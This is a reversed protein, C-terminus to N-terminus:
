RRAARASLALGTGAFLVFTLAAAVIPAWWAFRAVVAGAFLVIVTPGYLVVIEQWRMATSTWGECVGRVRGAAVALWIALVAAVATVGLGFLDPLVTAFPLVALVAATAFWYWTPYGAWAVRARSERASALASSAEAASIPGKTEM